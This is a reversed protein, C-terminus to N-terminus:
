ARFVPAPESEDALAVGSFYDIAALLTAVDQAVSARWEERLELRLCTAAAAVYDDISKSDTAM